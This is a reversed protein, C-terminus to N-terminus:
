YHLAQIDVELAVIMELELIPVGCQRSWSQLGQVVNAAITM